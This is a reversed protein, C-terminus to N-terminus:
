SWTQLWAFSVVAQAPRIAVWVFLSVRLNQCNNYLTMQFRDIILPTQFLAVSLVSPPELTMYFGAVIRSAVDIALTLSPRQLPKRHVWDVVIVAAVAQLRALLAKRVLMDRAQDLLSNLICPQPGLQGLGLPQLQKGAVRQARTEGGASADILAIDLLREAM